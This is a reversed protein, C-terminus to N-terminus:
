APVPTQGIGTTQAYVATLQEACRRWSYRSRIRDVSATAYTLRRVQDTLLRRLAGALARPSRQGVLDGTVRDVVVDAAGGTAEGVVPVGCAMAELATRGYPDHDGTAVLVDASRYWGPLEERSVGDVLTVRAAVGCSEALAALRAAFPDDSRRGAPRPGLVVCEAGPVAPLARVLDALGSGGRSAAVTLIRSRADRPAKPGDPRFLTQDVGAPVLVMRSRPVGRRILHGLEETNQVVVRDVAQGLARDYGSRHDVGDPAPGSGSGRRPRPLPALAHYTLVVPVPGTRRVAHLAALGADWGHAHVVDPSWDEARWGAALSRGYEGLQPLLEGATAVPGTPTGSPHGRVDHGGDLLEATLETVHRGRDEAHGGGPLDLPGVPTSIMAIRM